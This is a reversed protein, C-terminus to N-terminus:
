HCDYRYTTVIKRRGLDRSQTSLRGKTDYAYIITEAPAPEFRTTGAPSAGAMGRRSTETTVRGAADYAYTSETPAFSPDSPETRRGVLRGKEYSFTTTVTSRSKQVLSAITGDANYTFATTTGDGWTETVIRGAKDRKFTRDGVRALAGHAYTYKRENGDDAKCSVLRGKGDRKCTETTAHARPGFHSVQTASVMRGAKYTYTSEQTPKGDTEVAGSCAQMCTATGDLCRGGVSVIPSAIPCAPWLGEGGWFPVIAAFNLEPCIEIKPKAEARATAVALLLVIWKM